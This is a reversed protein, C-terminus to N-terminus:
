ECKICSGQHTGVGGCESCRDMENQIAEILLKMEEESFVQSIIEAIDYISLGNSETRTELLNSKIDNRLLDNSLKDVSKFEDVKNQEENEERSM